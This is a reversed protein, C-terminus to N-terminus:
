RPATGEVAKNQSEKTRINQQTRNWYWIGLPLIFGYPIMLYLKQPFPLSILLGTYIIVLIWLILTARIVFAKEKPGKTNKVSFYSGVIGGMLGIIGGTIGGIIGADM